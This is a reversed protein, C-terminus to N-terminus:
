IRRGKRHDDIKNIPTSALPVRPWCLPFSEVAYDVQTPGSTKNTPSKKPSRGM